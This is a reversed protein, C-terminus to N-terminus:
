GQYIHLEGACHYILMAQIWLSMDLSKKILTPGFRAFLISLCLLFGASKMFAVTVYLRYRSGRVPISICLSTKNNLWRRSLATQIPEQMVIVDYHDRHRRLDGAEHNNVWGMMWASILCFMLAGCWQGKHPSNVPSRHIGRVFSWYRAFHKWKIVDDHILDTQSKGM